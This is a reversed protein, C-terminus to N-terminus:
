TKVISIGSMIIAKEVEEVSINNLTIYDNQDTFCIMVGKQGHQMFNTVNDINILNINGRDDTLKIIKM